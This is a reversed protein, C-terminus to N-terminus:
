VRKFKIAVKFLDGDLYINFTGDQLETLSKAISLGLGSGETNRSKDGRVFRQMLEDASINLEDKSINKVYITVTNEEELICDIYVRTNEEAYKAVNSYINELVRYLYRSDAKIYVTKEPLKSIINLGRSNFKDEFEGTVQNLLEKVNLVEKNIKINGSSAKSAEVLDEILKKLRQSKNDLVEIYEKAKENQINEQKLLDVYNIISTLPTKIDHSVNTILETKLRESKLSEKIANSFGGAIDNIYIALEKLVGTYLSEDLKINTDGKYIKETADHIQKFKDVEKMIKYYCWIWFVIDLLIGFEKFILGILISVTVIGIFYLAIKGGLNKNSSIINKVNKYKQILWKLIRYTISNKFFTHAKIRKLLTGAGYLASLVSFYGVLMILMVCLNVDVSIVSLCMVLLAAEVFFLLCYGFFLIELPIKDLWSLYIEEKNKVYGLSYILYILEISGIIISIILTSYSYKYLSKTQNYLARNLTIDSSSDINQVTEDFATYYQKNMSFESIKQLDENRVINEESLREINTQIQNNSISWYKNNSIIEQKLKEITNTKSTQQINTYAIKAEENVLLYIFKKKTHNTQYYIKYEGDQVYIPMRDTDEVPDIEYGYEDIFYGEEVEDKLSVGKREVEGMYSDIFMDTDYFDKNEKIEPCAVSYYIIICDVIIIMAFIPLTLFAITKLVQNKLISREEMEGCGRM